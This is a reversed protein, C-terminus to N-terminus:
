RHPEVLDLRVDKGSGGRRLSDATVVVTAGPRLVSVVAKRFAEDIVFKGRYSTEDQQPQDGPLTLRLWQPGSDGSQQLSYASTGRVAALIEVPASGIERGNRLVIVRKDAASLILSVPGIPSAEPTWVIGAAPLTSAAAGGALLDPSPGVRPLAFENTVVVTLGLRTVGYLRRAFELPLRICGHSAAYGPLNGAHLAIGDWTLRQMYPMPADSYLNSKHEVQRQLITFVGTPTEHGSKGSSLTSVGIPVGNRYVVARQTALSVMVLVPGEPAIQPLWLFQGPKLREVTAMISGQTQEPEAAYTAGANSLAAAIMGAVTSIRFWSKM